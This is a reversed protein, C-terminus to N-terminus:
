SVGRAIVTGRGLCIRQADHVNPMTRLRDEQPQRSARLSIGECDIRNSAATVWRNRTTSSGKRLEKKAEFGYRAAGDGDVADRLAERRAGRHPWGAQAPRDRRRCPESSRGQM